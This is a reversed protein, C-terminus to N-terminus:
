RRLQSQDGAGGLTALGYRGMSRVSLARIAPTGPTNSGCDIDGLDGKVTVSGFDNTGGNIHGVAALGRLKGRGVTLKPGISFM